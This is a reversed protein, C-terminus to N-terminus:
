LIHRWVSTKRKEEKEAEKEAKRVEWEKINQVLIWDLANVREREVRSNWRDMPKKGKQHRKLARKRGAKAARDAKRIKHRIEWARIKALTTTAPSPAPVDFSLESIYDALYRLCREQASLEITEESVPALCPDKKDLGFLKRLRKTGIIKMHLRRPHFYDANMRALYDKMRKYNMAVTGLVAIGELAGGIGEAVDYPVLGVAAGTFEMVHFAAHPTM